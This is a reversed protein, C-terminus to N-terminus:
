DGGKKSKKGQEDIIIYIIQRMTFGQKEETMTRMMAIFDV